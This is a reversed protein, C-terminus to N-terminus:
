LYRRFLIHEHEGKKNHILGPTFHLSSAWFDFFAQVYGDVFLAYYYHVM